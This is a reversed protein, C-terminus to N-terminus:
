RAECSRDIDNTAIPSTSFLEARGFVSPLQSEFAPVITRPFRVDRLEFEFRPCIYRDSVAIESNRDRLAERTERQEFLLILKGQFGNSILEFGDQGM